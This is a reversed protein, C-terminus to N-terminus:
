APMLAQGLRPLHVHVRGARPDTREVVIARDDLGILAGEVVAPDPTDTKVKVPQGATWDGEVQYSGAPENAAALEIAQEATWDTPRGHGVAAVRGAWGAIPEGFSAPVLQRMRQFWVLMYLAFDAHGPEDGGVFARGDALVERIVALAAAFQARLHPAGAILAEKKLGFRRGRDEWFAPPVHEAIPALASGVAAGFPLIASLAISLGAAGLPRPYLTPGDVREEMARCIALTDCYVDAGIQLVPTREYGGTLATLDPKPAVSPIEVLGYEARKRGLALRVVEAWPSNPYHHLVLDM